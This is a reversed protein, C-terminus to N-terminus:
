ATSITIPLPGAARVIRILRGRKVSIPAVVRSAKLYHKLSFGTGAGIELVDGELRAVLSRRRRGIESREEFRGLLDYLRGNV